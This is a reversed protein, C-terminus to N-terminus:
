KAETILSTHSYIFQKLAEKTWTDEEGKDGKHVNWFTINSGYVKVLDPCKKQQMLKVVDMMTPREKGKNSYEQLQNIVWLYIDPVDTTVTKVTFKKRISNAGTEGTVKSESGGFVKAPLLRNEVAWAIWPLDIGAQRKHLHYHMLLGSIRYREGGRVSSLGFPADQSVPPGFSFYGSVIELYKDYESKAAIYDVSGCIVEAGDVLRTLNMPHDFPSFGACIWAFEELSWTKLKLIEKIKEM